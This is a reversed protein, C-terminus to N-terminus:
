LGKEKKYHKLLQKKTYTKSVDAQLYWYNFINSYSYTGEIFEIFGISFEDALDEIFCIKQLNGSDEILITQIKEQLNM